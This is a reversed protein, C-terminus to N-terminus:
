RLAEMPSVRSARWAPVLAALVTVVGLGVGVMLFTTGDLAGVGYLFSGMVRGMGLAGLMGLGLGVALMVGAQGLVMAVVQGPSAGMAVRLGFEATRETVLYSMVGYVGAMALGVALMAFLGTLWSRFRPLAVAEALLGDMTTFKVPMEPHWGRVLGEVTSALGAGSGTTRMVVHVENARFPHQALPMYLQPGPVAAPGEQRVDSVVGVVTMWEPSDLGCQMRKGIPDEGAFTQRALSESIIATFPRDYQDGAGFDRGRVLRMGMVGFYGPSVLRFGASPGSGSDSVRGEVRYQGFSSYRSAPLGMAAAAGQIGPVAALKPLMGEIQRVARRHGELGEAPAHAEMVLLGASRYGLENAQMKLLSRVLLGAGAALVVCIAIESVVLWQRARGSVGGGVVGRAGGSKLHEVVDGRAAALAPLLGFLVAAGLSVVTTFAVVPWQVGVERARPLGPALAVLADVSGYALGVGLLGGALGLVASEVLVQRVVQGRSAGLAARLAFERSRSTARALMLNAVNACATLLVLSVAGLLVWLMTRVPGVLQEQLPRVVFGKNRSEKPFAQRQGAAVRDVQAQVAELTVGDGLRAVLPYNYATRNLNAPRVPAAIWVNAERPYRFWEPAVGVVTVAQQDFRFSKGIAAAAGGWHRRAFTASVVAARGAEEDGFVRGAVLAVAFVQFYAPPVLYIGTFEAGEAFQIGMEGGVHYAVAALGPAQERVDMVDAGTVRPTERGTDAARHLVSVIREPEPYALPRLLVGYVVSFVSSNAGIGLALTLIAIFAFGPNRRIQRLAFRLEQM